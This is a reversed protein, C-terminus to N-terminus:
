ETPLPRGLFVAVGHDGGNYIEVVDLNGDNNVDEVGLLPEPSMRGSTMTTAVTFVGRGNNCYVTIWDQDHALLDLDGDGELDALAMTHVARAGTFDASEIAGFSSAGTRVISIGRPGYSLLLEPQGDGDIDGAVM